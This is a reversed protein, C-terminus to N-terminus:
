GLLESSHHNSLLNQLELLQEGRALYALDETQTIERVLLGVIEKPLYSRVQLNDLTIKIDVSWIQRQRLNNRM